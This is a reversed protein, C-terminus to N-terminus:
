KIRRKLMSGFMNDLNIFFMYTLSSIPGTNDWIREAKERQYKNLYKFWAVM